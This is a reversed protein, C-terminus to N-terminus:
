DQMLEAGVHRLSLRMSGWRTPPTIQEKQLLYDVTEIHQVDDLFGGDSLFLTGGRVDDDLVDCYM